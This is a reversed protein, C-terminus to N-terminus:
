SACCSQTLRASMASRAWSLDNLTQALCRCSEYVGGSGEKRGLHMNYPASLRPDAAGVLFGAMRVSWIDKSSIGDCSVNLTYGGRFRRHSLGEGDCKPSWEDADTNDVRIM